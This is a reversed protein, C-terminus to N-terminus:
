ESRAVEELGEGEYVHWGPRVDFASRALARAVCEARIPRYKRWPGVCVLRWLGSFVRGLREAPRSEARQGLLLSPHLVHVTPLQLAALAQELEGKVRNYFVRSQASAGVATVIGLVGVGAAKAAQALRQPYVSDVERFATQSGAKKITTGLACLVADPRDRQLTAALNDFRETAVFRLKAHVRNPARRGVAVVTGVNPDALLMELCLNGVLGTAGALWITKM